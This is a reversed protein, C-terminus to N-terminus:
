VADSGEFAYAGPHSFLEGDEITFRVDELATVEDFRRTSGDVVTAAPDTM